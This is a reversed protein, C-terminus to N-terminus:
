GAVCNPLIAKRYLDTDCLIQTTYDSQGLIDDEVDIDPPVPRGDDEYDLLMSTTADNAMLLADEVDKGQTICTGLAPTSIIVDGDKELKMKVTYIYKM